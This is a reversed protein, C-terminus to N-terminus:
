LHLFIATKHPVLRTSTSMSFFIVLLCKSGGYLEYCRAYQKTFIWRVDYAVSQGGFMFSATIVRIEPMCKSIMDYLGYLGNM